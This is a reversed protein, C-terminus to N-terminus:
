DPREKKREAVKKKHELMYPLQYNGSLLSKLKEGINRDVKCIYSVCDKKENENKSKKLNNALTSIDLLNLFERMPKPNKISNLFFFCKQIRLPNKHKVVVDALEQVDLMKWLKEGASKQYSFVMGIGWCTMAIYKMQKSKSILKKWDLLNWFEWGMSDNVMFLISIPACICGFVKVEPLVNALKKIDLLNCFEIAMNHDSTNFCDIFSSTEMVHTSKSFRSALKKLDIHDFLKQGAKPNVKYLDRFCYGANRIDDHTSIKNTLIVLLQNNISCSGCDKIWFNVAKMSLENEIVETMKGAANVRMYLQNRVDENKFVIAELGNPVGSVAYEYIFDIPKQLKRRRRYKKGHEWYVKALASHPLGYLVYQDLNVQRTIEGRRVLENLLNLDFGLTNTLFGEETLIEIQYLPSLAVLVEPFGHNLKELDEMDEKIGEVLWARPEDTDCKKIYGELAYAMLWFSGKAIDKISQVVESPLFGSPHVSMFHDIIEDAQCFPKLRIFDLNNLSNDKTYQFERFSPRTTFLVHKKSDEKIQELLRQIKRIELHINELIFVGCLTNIENTLEAQDFGRNLDCDFYYVELENEQFLEYALQRILVTKGVAAVGELISLSNSLIMSKLKDLLERRCYVKDTDFDVALPGTKRFWKSKENGKIRLVDEIPRLYKFNDRVVINHPSLVGFEEAMGQVKEHQGRVNKLVSMKFVPADIFFKKFPLKEADGKPNEFYRNVTEQYGKEAHHKETVECSMKMDSAKDAAKAYEVLERLLRDENYDGRDLLSWNGKCANKIEETPELGGTLYFYAEEWHAHKSMQRKAFLGSSNGDIVAYIKFKPWKENM